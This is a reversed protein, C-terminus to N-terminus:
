APLVSIYDARAGVDFIEEHPADTLWLHPVSLSGPQEPVWTAEITAAAGPLAPLLVSGRLVSEGRWGEGQTWGTHACAALSSYWSM